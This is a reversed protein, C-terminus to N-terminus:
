KKKSGCSSINLRFKNNKVTKGNQGKMNLVALQPKKCLNESNQLLSKKGGKMNLVFSKLPVDPTENFVTKLGGHKSSIVGDLQINIQGKLDALLDPLKHKSSVLYVPGKLKQKLLPSSAEAYGYISNQPCQQAALQVRTCNTKIHSQDLFLSHPLNLATRAINAQGSKAQVVVRIQPNKARTTPGSIRAHFTPKFALKNCGTAQFAASVAYSTWNAANAPNAGGGSLTGATAGKACNTPNLMFKYRNMNLDISRIDLKVGGFVNPIPDSVANVQATAPNVNLAARVVVTGLDFPGAVAPTVVALSLPAGKYPGSLYVVGNLSLPKGGTGASTVATGIASESSCSAKAQQAKGSSAAAAALEAEGCYPIGALRGVLGKPLTVNVAKIEQEGDNRGIHVKFPSFQAAKTSETAATYTPTFKRAGLSTPCAGGGPVSTLTTNTTPKNHDPNESWPTFETTTTNTGCTSASTLVGNNGGNFHLRFNRFTAQPNEPVVATLQGTTANPFVKGELRVNVGYRVSHAYIFIRFQEGTEFVGPGNKLPQGVYVEGTISGNPLS